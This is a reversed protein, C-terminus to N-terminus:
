FPACGHELLFKRVWEQGGSAQVYMRNFRAERDAQDKLRGRVLDRYFSYVTKPNQIYLHEEVATEALVCSDGSKEAGKHFQDEINAVEKKMEAFRAEYAPDGIERMAETMSPGFLAHAKPLAGLVSQYEHLIEHVDYPGLKSRFKLSYDSIYDVGCELALGGEGPPHPWNNKEYITYKIAPCTEELHIGTIRRYAPFVKCAVNVIFPRCSRKAAPDEVRSCDIEFKVPIQEQGPCSSVTITDQAFAPARMFCPGCAIVLCILVLRTTHIVSPRMFFIGGDM